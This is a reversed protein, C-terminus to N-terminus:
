FDKNLQEVYDMLKEFKDYKVRYFIQKGKRTSALVGADKLAKLHHSVIAQSLNITKYIDTVSLTDKESLLRIIEVRTPNAVTKLKGILREM